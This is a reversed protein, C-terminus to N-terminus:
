NSGFVEDLANEIEEDSAIRSSGFTTDLAEEVEEDDATADELDETTIGNSTWSVSVYESKNGSWIYMSSTSKVVYLVNESGEEPLEECFLVSGNAIDLSQLLENCYVKLISIMEDYSAIQEAIDLTVRESQRVSMEVQTM